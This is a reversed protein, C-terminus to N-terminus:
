APCSGALMEKAQELSTATKQEGGIMEAIEHLRADGKLEEVVTYTEKKKTEKSVKLQHAACSAIQPLHTVCVVQHYESIAALREGIPRGMRGGINADIEDFILLPVRDADALISKLALM